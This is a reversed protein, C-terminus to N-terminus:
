RYLRYVMINVVSHCLLFNPHFILQICRDWYTNVLTQTMYIYIYIYVYIYICLHSKCLAVVCRMIRRKKLNTYWYNNKGCCNEAEQIHILPKRSMSMCTTTFIQSIDVSNIKKCNQNNLTSRVNSVAAERLKTVM